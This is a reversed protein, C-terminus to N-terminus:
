KHRGLGLGRAAHAVEERGVQPPALVDDADDLVHVLAVAELRQLRGRDLVDLRQQPLVALLAVLKLFEVLQDVPEDVLHLGVHDVQRVRHHEAQREDADHEAGISGYKFRMDATSFVWDPQPEERFFKYWGFIGGAVILLGIALLWYVLKRHKRRATTLARIPKEEMKAEQARM